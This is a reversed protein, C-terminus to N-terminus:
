TLNDDWGLQNFQLNISKITNSCHISINHIMRLLTAYNLTDALLTELYPGIAYEGM